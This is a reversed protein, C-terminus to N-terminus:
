HCVQELQQWILVSHQKLVDQVYVKHRQDRSFATNLGDQASLIGEQSLQQWLEKYYFDAHQSRCGFFLHSGAM